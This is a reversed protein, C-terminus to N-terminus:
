VCICKGVFGLCEIEIVEFFIIKQQNNPSKSRLSGFLGLSALQLQRFDGGGGGVIKRFIYFIM